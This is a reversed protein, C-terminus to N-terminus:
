VHSATSTLTKAAEIASQYLSTSDQFQDSKKEATNNKQQHKTNANERQKEFQTNNDLFGALPGVSIHAIISQILPTIHALIL